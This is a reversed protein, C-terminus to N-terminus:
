IPQLQRSALEEVLGVKRLTELVREGKAAATLIPTARLSRRLPEFVTMRPDLSSYPDQFIMQFKRRRARLEAGTLRAIDEGDLWISGDTPEVLKVIARGLTTKGCGSEGVLGLTEGAEISFSVDDVAKVYKVARKLLGNQARYHVKLNKVELM